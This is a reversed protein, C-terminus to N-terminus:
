WDFGALAIVADNLSAHTVTTKVKIGGLDRMNWASDFANAWTDKIM